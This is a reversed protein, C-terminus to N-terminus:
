FINGGEMDRLFSDLERIERTKRTRMLSAIDVREDYPTPMMYSFSSDYYSLFSATLNDLLWCHLNGWTTEPSYTQWQQGAAKVWAASRSVFRRQKQTRLMFSGFAFGVHMANYFSDCKVPYGQEQYYTGLVHSIDRLHPRFRKLSGVLQSSLQPQKELVRDEIYVEVGEHAQLETIQMGVLDSLEESFSPSHEDIFTHIAEDQAVHVDMGYLANYVSDFEAAKEALDTSDRHLVQDDGDYIRKLTPWRRFSEDMDPLLGVAVDMLYQDAVDPMLEHGKRAFYVHSCPNM